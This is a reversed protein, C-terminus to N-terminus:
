DLRRFHIKVERAGAARRSPMPPAAGPLRINPMRLKMPVRVQGVRSTAAKNTAENIGCPTRAWPLFFALPGMRTATSWTTTWGRFWVNGTMPRSTARRVPKTAARM